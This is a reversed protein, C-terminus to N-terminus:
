NRILPVLASWDDISVTRTVTNCVGRRMETGPLSRKMEAVVAAASM